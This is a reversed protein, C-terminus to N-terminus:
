IESSPFGTSVEGKFNPVRLFTELLPHNLFFTNKAWVNDWREFANDNDVKYINHREPSCSRRTRGRPHRTLSVNL